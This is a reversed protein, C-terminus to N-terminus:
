YMRARDGDETCTLRQGDGDAAFACYPRTGSLAHRFAIQLELGSSRRSLELSKEM